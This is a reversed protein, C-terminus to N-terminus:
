VKKGLCMTMAKRKIYFACAHFLDENVNFVRIVEEILCHPLFYFRLSM